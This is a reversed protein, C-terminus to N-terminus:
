KMYICMIGAEYRHIVCRYQKCAPPEPSGQFPIYIVGSTGLYMSTCVQIMSYM